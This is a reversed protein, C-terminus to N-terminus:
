LGFFVPSSKRASNWPDASAGFAVGFHRPRDAKWYGTTGLESPWFTATEALLEM